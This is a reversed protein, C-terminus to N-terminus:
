RSVLREDIGTPVGRRADAIGARRQQLHQVVVAHGRGGFRVARVEPVPSQGDGKRLLKDGISAPGLVAEEHLDMGLGAPAELELEPDLPRIAESNGVVRVGTPRESPPGNRKKNEDTSRFSGYVQNRRAVKAAAHFERREFVEPE